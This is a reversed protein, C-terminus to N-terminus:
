KLDFKIKDTVKFCFEPFINNVCFVLNGDAVDVDWILTNTHIRTPGMRVWNGALTFQSPQPVHGM